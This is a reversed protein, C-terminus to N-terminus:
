APKARRFLRGDIATLGAAIFAMGLFHRPELREGLFLTGLMIASVPILFTVLLLNTAGATALIRFFIVYALATSIIALGAIAQWTALSPAPLSLPHEFVLVLPILVLTSGILQGAATAIPNIGMRRFRRGYVGSVAYFISAVLIAVEAWFNRDFGQFATPGILIAVGAIGILLGSLKFVTMKEDETFYHAVVVAFLPTTANLISALGSALAGQGWAILSQPIVNNLFGMVLFAAWIKPDRPLATRMVALAALLAAAAIAVRLLIITMPPLEKVAVGIFFYSGGWLVSLILLLAWEM